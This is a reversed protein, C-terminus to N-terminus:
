GGCPVTGGVKWLCGVAPPLTLMLPTSRIAASIIAIRRGGSQAGCGDGGRFSPRLEPQCFIGGTSGGEPGGGLMGVAM